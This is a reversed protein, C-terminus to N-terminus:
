RQMFQPSWLILAVMGRLREHWYNPSSNTQLDSAPNIRQDVGWVGEDIVGSQFQQTMFRMCQQGLLTGSGFGSDAPGAWGGPPTFGLIWHCWFEVLERPSPNSGVNDLTIDIIRMWRTADNEDDRDILRDVARWAKVLGTSGQWHDRTDPYGDPTQWWFQRQGAENYKNLFDNSNDDFRFTHDGGAARAASVVYDFPRKIKTNFLAPDRFEPSMVITRITREIQRPHLRNDMFTQAAADVVSQPPNDSLLRRTLKRAIYNATAPHYALLKIVLEGEDQANGDAGIRLRDLSLFAKPQTDHWEDLILFTGPGCRSGNNDIHDDDFTWGTLARAASYVDLDVYAAAIDITDYGFAQIDPDNLAAYPNEALTPILDPDRTPDVTGAYNEAGMSHLELLERGYNENFEGSGARGSIFNDLYVLMAPHKATASLFQHFNGFAHTRMLRDWDPWSVYTDRSDGGFISFHNHWFDVMLEKLQRRSYIARNFKAREVEWLPRAYDSFDRCERAIYLAELSDDLTTFETPFQNMRQTPEPDSLSENFQNDLYASLRQEDDYGLSNFFSIDDRTEFNNGTPTEFDSIFIADPNRPEQEPGLQLRRPGFGLRNLAVVAFPPELVSTVGSKQDNNIGIEQRKNGAVPEAKASVSKASLAAGAVAAGGGAIVARRTPSHRKSM